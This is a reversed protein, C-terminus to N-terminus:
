ARRTTGSLRGDSDAPAAVLGWSRATRIANIRDCVGLKRYIHELHKNVTRPSCQLRHGVARTSHGAAVLGLVALERSTLDADVYPTPAAQTLRRVVTLQRDVGVILRQIERAVVLDDDSFDAGSRGLVYAQYSRGDLRYTISLQQELEVERLVTM